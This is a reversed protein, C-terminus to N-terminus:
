QERSAQENLAISSFMHPWNAQVIGVIEDALEDLSRARDDQHTAVSRIESFSRFWTEQRRALRRTHFLVQEAVADVDWTTSNSEQSVAEIADFIERYGVATRATKSLPDNGNWLCKAEDLLGQQFMKGVREEIRQHLVARPTRLAFVLGEEAKQRRHFHTQFHSMPVGTAKAFELARTMRRVDTPHIKNASLPDVQKLRSRLADVGYRQVDQAVAQRFSEDAPPGPHFGKLIAKLYMPTGGVFMPVHGRALITEVCHHARELYGAVSFEDHPDVIDILHHIVRERQDSTPKASGIDMGRYVAISDLSIIEITPGGKEGALREAVGLALESKGSATPGTLVIVRDFLSEFPTM